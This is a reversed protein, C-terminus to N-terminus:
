NSSENEILLPCSCRSLKLRCAQDNPNLELDHASCYNKAWEKPGIWLAQCRKNTDINPLGSLQLDYQSKRRGFARHYTISVSSQVTSPKIESQDLKLGLLAAEQYRGVVWYRIMEHKIHAQEICTRLKKGDRPPGWGLPIWQHLMPLFLCPISFLLAFRWAKLLKTPPYKEVVWVLGMPWALATWNAEVKLILSAVAFVFMSPASLYFCVQEFDVLNKPEQAKDEVTKKRTSRTLLTKHIYDKYALLLYLFWLGGGVLIQGGIFEFSSFVHWKRGTQFSWPLWDHHMSWYLQPLYICLLASSMFLSKIRRERVQLRPDHWCLYLLGIMAPIIMVKAWLGLALGISMLRYSCLGYGLVALSWSFLLPADPTVLVGSALGLPTSWAILCLTLASQRAGCSRSAWAFNFWAVPLLCLNLLRGGGLSWWAVGAPHDFYGWDLSESWRKYYAEDAMEPLYIALYVQCLWAALCAWRLWYDPKM